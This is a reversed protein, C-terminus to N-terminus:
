SIFVHDVFQSRISPTVSAVAEADPDELLEALTQGPKMRFLVLAGGGAHIMVDHYISGKVTVVKETERNAAYATTSQMGSPVLSGMASSFYEM